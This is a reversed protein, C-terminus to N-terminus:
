ASFTDSSITSFDSISLENRFGASNNRLYSVGIDPFEENVRVTEDVFYKGGLDLNQCQDM